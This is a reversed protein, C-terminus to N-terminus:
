NGPNGLGASAPFRPRGNPLWQPSPARPSRRSPSPPDVAGGSLRNGLDSLANHLLNFWPNLSISAIIVIWALAAAAVGMYTLADKVTAM